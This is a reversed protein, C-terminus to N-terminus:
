KLTDMFAELRTQFGAEGTHEDIILYLFPIKRSKFEKEIFEKLVADCGCQFSSIEIAGAINFELVANIKEMIEKGFEWHFKPVASERQNSRQNANIPVEDIFIVEAGLKELKEKMRLNVYEDELNYPHSILIFKQKSSNIKKFFVEERRKQIEKQKLFSNETAKKVEERNKNLKKGLKELTKELNEKREDFTETLIKNKVLIKALDPVGFFKPCYELKDKTVSGRKAPHPPLHFSDEAVAKMRPVFIYDCKGDLWLLHGWYVKNSFCTEPDSVRVGAEVIEKNTPPSILIEFGLNEFFTEWFYPQKWYLLARPIGIVM